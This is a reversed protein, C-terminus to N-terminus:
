KNQQRDQAFSSGQAITVGSFLKNSEKDNRIALHLHRPIIRAKKNDRAANRALELVETALYEMVASLYVPTGAGVPEM